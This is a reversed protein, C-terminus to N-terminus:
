YPLLCYKDGYIKKLYNQKKKYNKLACLLTNCIHVERTGTETKQAEQFGDEKIMKQDRMYM